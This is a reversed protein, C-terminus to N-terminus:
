KENNSIFAIGWPFSLGEAITEFKYEKKHNDSYVFSCAFCAITLIGIKFLHNKM